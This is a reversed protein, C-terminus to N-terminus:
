LAAETYHLPRAVTLINKGRRLQSGARKEHSRLVTFWANTQMESNISTRRYAQEGGVEVTAGGSGTAAAGNDGTVTRLVLDHKGM